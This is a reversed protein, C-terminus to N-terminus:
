DVYKKSYKVANSLQEKYSYGKIFSTLLNYESSLQRFRTTSFDLRKLEDEMAEAKDASCKVFVEAAYGQNLILRAMRNVLLFANFGMVYQSKFIDLLNKKKMYQDKDITNIANIVSPLIPCNIQYMVINNFNADWLKLAELSAKTTAIHDSHGDILFPMYILDPKVENLISNLKDVLGNNPTIKGDPEDLFIVNKVGIAEKVEMAEEKRIDMVEKPNLHSVSGSCDSIYVIEIHNKNSAHNLLTAGLGITEDDVHPSIILIRSNEIKLFNNDLDLPKKKLRYYLYVFIYNAVRLPYKLIIKILKKIM